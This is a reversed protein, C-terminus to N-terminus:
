ENLKKILKNLGFYGVWSLIINAALNKFNIFPIALINIWVILCIPCTILRVCFNDYKNQLFNIYNFPPFAKKFEKYETYKAFKLKFIQAYELFAETEFWIYSIVIIFAILGIDM